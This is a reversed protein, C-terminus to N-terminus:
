TTKTPGPYLHHVVKRSLMATIDSLAPLDVVQKPEGFAYALLKCEVAPALRNSIIRQRVRAFYEDDFLKQSLERIERTTKNPVGKPRGGGRRLGSTNRM